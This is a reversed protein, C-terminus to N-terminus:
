GLKCVGKKAYVFLLIGKIFFNKLCLDKLEIVEFGNKELLYKMKKKSYANMFVGQRIFNGFRGWWRFFTDHATTILLSGNENTLTSIKSFLAESDKIYEIASFSMVVDFKKNFQVELFDGSVLEINKINKSTAKENLKELMKGSIDLATIEKVLPAAELTFRGTGAGIELVSDTKKLVKNIYSLILEQEPVRVFRFNESEQEQDYYSAFDDYFKVIKKSM